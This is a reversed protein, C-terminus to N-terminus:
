IPLLKTQSFHRKYIELLGYDVMIKNLFASDPVRRISKQVIRRESLTNPLNVFYWAFAKMTGVFSDTKQRVVLVLLARAILILICQPLYWLLNYLEYNKSMSRLSNKALHFYIIESNAGVNKRKDVSKVHHYVISAPALLSKYGAIWLRWSFDLDESYHVFKPDFNIGKKFAETKVALAASLGIIETPRRPAKSVDLGADLGIAWGTQRILKLGSNQIQTRKEYDVLLSQVSIVQPDTLFVKRIEKLWNPTVETDNDLFYIFETKVHDIANNRSGSPGLNKPNVLFDLNKHLKKFSKIISISKDTSCDDVILVTYKKDTSLFISTLCKSLFDEGNYNAIVITFWDKKM